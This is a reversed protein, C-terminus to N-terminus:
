RIREKKKEVYWLLIPANMMWTSILDGLLGFFIVAAIEFIITIQNFFSISLMVTLAALTTFTMTLGTKMAGITRDAATGERRKLLRTTLMIDTDVSYGVLMLLAPITALSLPVKFVAM